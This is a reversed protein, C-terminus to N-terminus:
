MPDKQKERPSLDEDDELMEYDLKLTGVLQVQEAMEEEARKQKFSKPKGLRAHTREALGWARECVCGSMASLRHADDGSPWRQGSPTWLCWSHQVRPRAAGLSVRVARAAM